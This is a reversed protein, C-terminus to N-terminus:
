KNDNEIYDTHHLTSSLPSAKLVVIIVKTYVDVATEYDGRVLARDGLSLLDGANM